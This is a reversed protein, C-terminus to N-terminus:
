IGLEGGLSFLPKVPVDYFGMLGFRKALLMGLVYACGGGLYWFPMRTLFALLSDRHRMSSGVANLWLRGTGWDLFTFATGILLYAAPNVWHVLGLLGHLAYVVAAAGIAIALSRRIGTMNKWRHEM